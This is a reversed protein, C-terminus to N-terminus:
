ERVAPQQQQWVHGPLPVADHILAAGLGVHVDGEGDVDAPAREVVEEVQDHGADEDGAHRQQAEREGWIRPLFKCETLYDKFPQVAM